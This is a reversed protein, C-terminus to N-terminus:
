SVDNRGYRVNFSTDSTHGANRGADDTCEKTFFKLERKHCVKRSEEVVM